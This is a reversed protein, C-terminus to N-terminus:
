FKKDWLGATFTTNATEEEKSLAEAGFSGMAQQPFLWVLGQRISDPGHDNNKDPDESYRGDMRKKYAYSLLQQRLEVVNETIKLRRDDIFKRMHTIGNKVLLLEGPLKQSEDAVFRNGLMPLGLNFRDIQEGVAHPDGIWGSINEMTLGHSFIMAKADGIIDNTGKGVCYLEDFIVVEQKRYDVQALLCVDPHDKTSGFDEFVYVQTWGQQLSNMDLKFDRAMNLTDDFNAYVLGNTDARKCEWQTEWVSRDLTNFTEILDNWTYYGSCQDVNEPLYNGFVEKIRAVEKEDQPLGEVVEWICWQYLKLNKRAISDEVLRQMPGAAFKRTSGLIMVSEVGNKSQVTSFAEQLIPWPILEVEDMKLKQPHPGNIGSM